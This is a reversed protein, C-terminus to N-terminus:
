ADFRWAEIRTIVSVGRGEPALRFWISDVFRNDFMLSESPYTARMDGHVTIGDFSYQVIDDSNTSEIMLALGISNFNWSLKYDSFTGSNVNIKNFFNNNKNRLLAM